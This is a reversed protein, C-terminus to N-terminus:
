HRAYHGHYREGRVIEHRYLGPHTRYHSRLVDYHVYTRPVYFAVGDAYYFPYGGEDYYVAYGNYFLPSYAGVAVRPPPDAAVICGGLMTSTALAFMLTACLRSFKMVGEESLTPASTRGLERRSRHMPSALRRDGLPEGSEVNAAVLRVCVADPKDVTSIERV